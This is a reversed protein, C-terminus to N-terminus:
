RRPEGSPRRCREQLAAPSVCLVEEMGTGIETSPVPQADVQAMEAAMDPQALKPDQRM